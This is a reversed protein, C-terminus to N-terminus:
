SKEGVRGLGSKGFAQKEFIQPKVCSPIPFGWEQAVKQVQVCGRWVDGTEGRGKSKSKAKSKQAFRSVPWHLFLRGVVFSKPSWISM